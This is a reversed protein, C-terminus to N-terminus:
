TSDARLRRVAGVGYEAVALRCVGTLLSRTRDVSWGMRRAVEGISAGREFLRLAHCEVENGGLGRLYALNESEM